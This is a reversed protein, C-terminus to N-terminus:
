QSSTTGESAHKKKHHHHKKHHKKTISSSSAASAPTAFSPASLAFAIATACLLTFLKRMTIV